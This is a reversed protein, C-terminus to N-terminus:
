YRGDATTIAGDQSRSLLARAPFAVGDEVLPGCDYLGSDATVLVGEIPAGDRDVIHGTITVGDGLVFDPFVGRSLKALSVLPRTVSAFGFKVAALSVSDDDEIRLSWRGEEDTTTIFTGFAAALEPAVVDVRHVTAGEIALGFADVVRGSVSQTSLTSRPSDPPADDHSARRSTPAAPEVKPANRRAPPRPDGSAPRATANAASEDMSRSPSPPRSSQIMTIAVAISTIAGAIGFGTLRM